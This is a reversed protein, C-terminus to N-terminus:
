LGCVVPREFRIFERSIRDARCKRKHCARCLTQLNSTLNTGGDRIPIIHDVEFGEDTFYEFTFNLCDGGKPPIENVVRVIGAEMFVQRRVMYYAHTGHAAGEERLWRLYFERMTKIEPRKGCKMCTFNDRELIFLRQKANLQRGEVAWEM